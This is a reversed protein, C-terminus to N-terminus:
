GFACSGQPFGKACACACLSCDGQTRPRNRDSNPTFVEKAASFQLGRLDAKLEPVNAELDALNQALSLELFDPTQGLPKVIKSVASMIFLAKEEFDRKESVGGEVKV